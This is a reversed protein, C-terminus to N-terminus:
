DKFFCLILLELTKILILLIAFIQILSISKWALFKLLM